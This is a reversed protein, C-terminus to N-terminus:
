TGVFYLVKERSSDKPANPIIFKSRFSKLPDENDLMQAFEMSNIEYESTKSRDEYYNSM